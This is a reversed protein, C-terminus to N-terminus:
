TSGVLVIKTRDAKSIEKYMNRFEVYSEAPYVGKKMTMKRSYNIGKETLEFKAEYVGFPTEIYNSEPLYEVHFGEPLTFFISDIDTYATKYHVETKREKLNKPISSLKNLPNIEFFIRNGTISSYGQSTVEINETIVPVIGPEFQYSFNTITTKVLPLKKQLWKKQEEPSEYLQRSVNEYQLGAYQTEITAIADGSKTLEITAIRKQTNDKQTYTPTKVLKGGAKTTMLVHRDSTSYGTYGFPNTQSTCELWITDTEFPVALFAHNFHANPFETVIDSSGQGANVLTYISEIGAHNLLASTYNTLAKCDGYGNEYVYTADYPQWGGIGLQVSVYRTTNQVYEYILKAKEKNDTVGILMKELEIIAGDPLNNRGAILKADYEGISEWTNMSGTYGQMEFAKPTILVYPTLERSPPGYPEPDFGVLNEVQWEYVLKDDDNSQKSTAM